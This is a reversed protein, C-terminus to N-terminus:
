VGDDPSPTKEGPAEAPGAVKKPPPQHMIQDFDLGTLRELGQLLRWLAYLMMALSPVMAGFLSAWHMRALEKNLAETGPPSKLIYRALGFNLVASLFFSLALLQSASKMLRDFDGRAGRAALAADVKAVDIVQPNYLMEHVLPEKARMSALVAAGILAPIAADKVAFWFPDLKMLGFSGYILLSAFGVISIFNFRRRTAFDHLGYGVPFLLAVVLAWRPGLMREGSAWTQIATPIVFNCTLNLWLNEPKVKPAPITADTM